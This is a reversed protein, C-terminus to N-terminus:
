FHHCVKYKFTKRHAPGANEILEYSPIMLRRRFCFELLAAV